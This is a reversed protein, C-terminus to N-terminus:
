DASRSLSDIRSLVDDVSSGCRVVLDRLFSEDADLLSRIIRFPTVIDSKRQRALNAVRSMLEKVAGNLPLKDTAVLDLTSVVRAGVEARLRSMDVGAIRLLDTGGPARLLGIVLNDLGVDSRGNRAADDIALDLAEHVAGAFLPEGGPRAEREALVRDPHGAECLELIRRATADNPRQEFM